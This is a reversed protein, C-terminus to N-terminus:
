DEKYKNCKKVTNTMFNRKTIQLMELQVKGFLINTDIDCYIVRHDSNIYSYFLLFGARRICQTPTQVHDSIAIADLCKEGIMHIHCKVSGM